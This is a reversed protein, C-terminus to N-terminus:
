LQVCDHVGQAGAITLHAVQGCICGEGYHIPCARTVFDFRHEDSLHRDGVCERHLQHAASVPGILDWLKLSVASERGLHQAGIHRLNLSQRLQPAAAFLCDPDLVNVHM